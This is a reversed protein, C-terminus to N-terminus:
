DKDGKKHLRKQVAEGTLERLADAAIWRAARSDSNSIEHAIQIATENLALNRKGIQRLAWNVAKKVFNREDAAYKKIYIFFPIFRDDEAKKESVALRAMLVFGARREFEKERECWEVALKWAFPTKQVMNMITQDCVEWDYFDQVMSELQDQDVCSPDDVLSSLIMTERTKGQWLQRALARDRGIEKALARLDPMSVGLTKDPRIGFRAMESVADPRGLAQLRQLVREYEM